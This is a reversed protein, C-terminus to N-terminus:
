NKILQQYISQYRQLEDPSAPVGSQSREKLQVAWDLDHQSLVHDEPQITSPDLINLRNMIEGYQKMEGAHPTYGQSSKQQLSAVFDLDASSLSKVGPASLGQLYIKQYRQQDASTPQYGQQIQAGLKRAWNQDAPSVPTSAIIAGQASQLREYIQTYADIEAQSPQYGDGTVRQQFSNAWAMEAESVTAPLDSQYDALLLRQSINQYAQLEQADPQYGQGVRSELGLAWDHEQAIVPQNKPLIAQTPQSQALQSAIAEYRKTETLDPQYGRQVKAELNKAWVLDGQSPPDTSEVFPLSQAAKGAAQVPASLRQDAPQQAPLSLGSLRSAQSPQAASPASYSHAPPPAVPAQRQIPNM